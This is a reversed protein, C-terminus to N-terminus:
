DFRGPPPPPPCVIVCVNGPGPISSVSTPNFPTDNVHIRALPIQVGEIYSAARVLAIDHVCEIPVFLPFAIDTQWVDHAQRLLTPGQMKWRRQTLPIGQSSVHSQRRRLNAAKVSGIGGPHPHRRFLVIALTAADAGGRHHLFRDNPSRLPLIFWCRAFLKSRFSASASFITRSAHVRSHFSEGKNM